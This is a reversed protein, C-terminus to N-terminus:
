RPAVGILAQHAWFFFLAYLALGGVLAIVDNLPRAPAGPVARPARRKLSIRDAVAWVLFGGFLLVDALTGNVLLHSLAWLKTALLMPHRTLTQIRGPLHSALLLPFVPVLLLWAVHRLWIPTAYLLVPSMRAQGYGVVILVLGVAALLSYTVKWATASRAVGADRWAPAVVSVSHVGLFLLLGLVLLSM